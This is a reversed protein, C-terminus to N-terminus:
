PTTNTGYRGFTDRILKMSTYSGETDFHHCLEKIMYLGSQEDDFENGDSLVIKPFECEIIDGARLNTNSPITMSLTQTFLTNYRMLAQSQYESPDSNKDFSVDKELTGVDLIQTIIRSPVDGLGLNSSNSIKPLELDQGLNKPNKNKGLYNKQTFVGEGERTFSFTYPDYYIRLSSYTGLRLKELLNQNRNTSYQLISFSNDRDYDSQNVDSYTYTFSDGNFTKRKEQTILGDISRFNFGDQTQYFLFGASSKKSSTPVAKSSLWTLLTFPKRRNGIFGYKNQADDIQVIKTTKLYNEIIDRVSSHIPSTTNYKKGVRSTENTIAERSVLNLTFSEKQSESLVNTISSVYFYDEPDSAFDLGPNTSSNGAIKLSVREGGRLPLGNYISQLPGNPNGENDSGAVSESTNAVVIRATITPSFIDEYYDISAVGLRLDVVKKQDNSQIQIEEYISKKTSM